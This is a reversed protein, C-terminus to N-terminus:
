GRKLYQSIAPYGQVMFRGDKVWCEHIRGDPRFAVYVTEGTGSRTLSLTTPDDNDQARTTEVWGHMLAEATLLDKVRSIEGM